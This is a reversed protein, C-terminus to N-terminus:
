ELLHQIQTQWTCFQHKQAILSFNAGKRPNDMTTCMAGVQGNLDKKNHGYHLTHFIQELKQVGIKTSTGFLHKFQL